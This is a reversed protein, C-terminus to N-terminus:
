HALSAHENRTSVLSIIIESFSLYYCICEKYYNYSSVSRPIVLNDASLWQEMIIGTLTTTLYSHDLIPTYRFLHEGYEKVVYKLEGKPHVTAVVLVYTVM